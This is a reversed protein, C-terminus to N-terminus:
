DYFIKKILRLVLNGFVFYVWVFFSVVLITFPTFLIVVFFGKIGYVEKGNLNVPIIGAMNLIIHFLAFPIYGFLFTIFIRKFLDKPIELYKEIIKKM